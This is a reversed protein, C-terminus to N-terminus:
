IEKSTQWIGRFRREMQSSDWNLVASRPVDYKKEDYDICAHECTFARKFGIEKLIIRTDIGINGNPYAFLDVQKNIISELRKKSEDIEHRQIDSSECDCLIHNVTHAGITILPDKALERIEDSTMTRYEERESVVVNLQKKLINIEEDRALYNNEIIESRIDLLLEARSPYDSLHFERRKTKIIEPLISKNIMNELVDWWFEKGNDIGGTSVFVTAPVNYKKLLPYAKSYFDVYGDDFTLAVSKSKVSSWDGDCRIINYNSCIYKLQDEFNKENVIISYASKLNEVRHYLLVNITKEVDEYIDSFEVLMEIERKIDPGIIDFNVYGKSTLRTVIEKWWRKNTCVLVYSSIVESEFRDIENVPVGMLLSKKPCDSTIFASIEIGREHLFIRTLRAVEGDGYLYIKSYRSCNKLITNLDNM